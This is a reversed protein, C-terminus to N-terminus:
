RTCMAQAQAEPVRANQLNSLCGYDIRPRNSDLGLPPLLQYSPAPQARQPQQTQLSMQPAPGCANGGGAKMCNTWATIAQTQANMLDRQQIANLADSYGGAVAGGYIPSRAQALNAAVLLAAAIVLIYKLM